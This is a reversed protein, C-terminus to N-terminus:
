CNELVPSTGSDVYLQLAELVRDIVELPQDPGCPLYMGTKSFDKSRPFDEGNNLYNCMHLSPSFPRAEIGYSNLFDILRQRENCLVEVYIPVEGEGTKVPILRLFPFEASAEVYKAYLSNLHTIRHPVFSLQVLGFSAQLDTFKFNFGMQNWTDTFNDVVGHNRVLKLKEYTEKSRTAVVGGQGTSILKTVGLSFCGADSQTGLFGTCNRSFLAQCADEIVLLGYEKAIRHIEQMNVARGNLHVPIIAKTRSTVKQRIQSVDVVPISPLVDVLVVRAGALLAAHATAIWTRDPVIVEDDRGIGLAMIAMLLSVSGSTTAVAYPVNLAEAIKAEFQETVPGQSIHDQAVSERLKQLEAEGFSIRWWSIKGMNM